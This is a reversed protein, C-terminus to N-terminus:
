CASAKSRAWLQDFVTKPNLNRELQDMAEEMPPAILRWHGPYQTESAKILLRGFLERTQERNKLPRELESHLRVLNAQRVLEFIESEENSLELTEKSEGLRVLLCRSRITPVLGNSSQVGILITWSALPEELTKLLANQIHLSCDQLNEFTIVRGKAEYPRHKLEYLKSRLEDMKLKGDCIIWDPHANKFSKKCNSCRGCSTGESCLVRRALQVLYESHGPGEIILPSPVIDKLWSLM